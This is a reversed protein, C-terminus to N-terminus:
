RDGGSNKSLSQFRCSCPPRVTKYATTQSELSPGSLADLSRLKEALEDALRIAETAEWGTLAVVRRTGQIWYLLNEFHVGGDDQRPSSAASAGPDVEQVLMLDETVLVKCVTM